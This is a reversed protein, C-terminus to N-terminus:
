VAPAFEKAICDEQKEHAWTEGAAAQSLQGRALEPPPLCEHFNSTKSQHLLHHRPVLHAKAVHIVSGSVCKLGPSNRALYGCPPGPPRWQITVALSDFLASECIKRLWLAASGRFWMRKIIEQSSHLSFSPFLPQMWSVECVGVICRQQRCSAGNVRCFRRCSSEISHKLTRLTLKVQELRITESTGLGRAFAVWPTPNPSHPPM